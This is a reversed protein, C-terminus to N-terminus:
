SSGELRQMRPQEVPKQDTNQPYYFSLMVMTPWKKIYLMAGEPVQIDFERGECAKLTTFTDGKFTVPDWRTDMVRVVVEQREDNLYYLKM